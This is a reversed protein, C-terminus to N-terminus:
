LSTHTANECLFVKYVIEYSSKDYKIDNSYIVNHYNCLQRIVTLFNKYSIKRKLYFIKSKQYYQKIQDYFLPIYNSLMGKKFSAHTIVYYKDTKLHCTNKLLTVLLSIPPGEKLFIQSVM